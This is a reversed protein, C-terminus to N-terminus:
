AKARGAKRQKADQRQLTELLEKAVQAAALDASGGRLAALDRRFRCDSPLPAAEPAWEGREEEALVWAREGDWDLHSLWNGRCASLPVAGRPYGWAELADGGKSSGSLSLSRLAKGTLGSGADAKPRPLAATDLPPAGSWGDPTRCVIGCLTDSRQLAAEGGASEATLPGFRLALVLGNAADEFRATGSIEARPVGTGLIGKLDYVPYDVTVAGGDAFRMVRAGKSCTSVASTRYTVTPESVGNYVYRAGPGFLQYASIPPHHSTQELFIHSGDPLSAQWTEGLIPNFPKRWTAFVLHFGAVFYTAVWKLRQLPDPADAAADLFRPFVWPDALKELYSRPEFIRVPLSVKLLDLNGMLLNKGLGKVVEMIAGRQQKMLEANNCAYGGDSHADPHLHVEGNLPEFFVDEDSTTDHPASPRSIEPSSDSMPPKPIRPVLKSM